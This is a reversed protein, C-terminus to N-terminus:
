VSVKNIIIDLQNKIDDLRIKVRALAIEVTKRIKEIDAKGRIMRLLNSGCLPDEKIDGQNSALVIYADQMTREGITLGDTILGNSDRKINVKLDNDGDLLIGKSM